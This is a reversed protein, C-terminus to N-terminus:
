SQPSSVCPQSSAHTTTTIAIQTTYKTTIAVVEFGDFGGGFIVTVMEGDSGSGHGGALGGGGSCDGDNSGNHNGGRCEHATSDIM